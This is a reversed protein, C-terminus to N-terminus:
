IKIIIGLGKLEKIVLMLNDIGKIGDGMNTRWHEGFGSTLFTPNHGFIKMAKQKVEDKLRPLESKGNKWWQLKYFKGFNDEGLCHIRVDFMENKGSITANFIVEAVFGKNDHPDLRAVGERFSAESM